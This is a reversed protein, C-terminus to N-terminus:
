EPIRSARDRFAYLASQAWVTETPSLPGASGVLAVAHQWCEWISTERESGIELTVQGPRRKCECGEVHGLKDWWRITAGTWRFVCKAATM